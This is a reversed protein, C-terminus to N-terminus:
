WPMRGHCYLIGPRAAVRAPGVGGNESFLSISGVPALMVPSSLQHGLFTTRLDPKGVGRLLRPRFAVTEMALRNRRLTTESGVGGAAHDWSGQPLRMRAARIVESITRFSADDKPLKAGGEDVDIECAGRAPDGSPLDVAVRPAPCTPFAPM